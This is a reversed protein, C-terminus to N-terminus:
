QGQKDDKLVKDYFKTFLVDFPKCIAQGSM